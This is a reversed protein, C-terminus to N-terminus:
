ARARPAWPIRSSPASGLSSKMMPYGGILQCLRASLLANAELKPINEEDNESEYWQVQLDRNLRAALEKALQYDFGGIKKGFKYSYPPSDEELCVGLTDKAYAAQPLAIAGFAIGAGVGLRGILRVLRPTM